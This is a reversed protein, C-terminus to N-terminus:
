YLKSLLDSVSTAVYFLNESPDAVLEELEHDWFFVRGPNEGALAICLLNGARDFAILLIHDQVRGRSMTYYKELNNFRVEHLGFFSDVVGNTSSVHGAIPFKELSPRGGYTSLLFAVYDEPLSYRIASEFRGITERTIPGYGKSFTVTM